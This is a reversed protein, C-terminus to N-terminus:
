GKSNKEEGGGDEERVFRKEEREKMRTCSHMHAMVLTEVKEGEMVASVERGLKRACAHM